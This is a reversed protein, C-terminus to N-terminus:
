WALVYTVKQIARTNDFTLMSGNEWVQWKKSWVSFSTIKVHTQQQSTMQTVNLISDTIFQYLHNIDLLVHKLSGPADLRKIAVAWVRKTPQNAPQMCFFLLHSTDGGLNKHITGAPQLDM